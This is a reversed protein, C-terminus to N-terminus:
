AKPFHPETNLSNPCHTSISTSARLQKQNRLVCMPQDYYDYYIYICICIYIYIYTFHISHFLGPARIAESGPLCYFQMSNKFFTYYCVVGYVRPPKKGSCDASRERTRSGMLKNPQVVVQSCAVRATGREMNEAQALDSVGRDGRHISPAHTLFSPCQPLTHLTNSHTLKMNCICHTLVMHLMSSACTSIHRHVYVYLCVRMCLCM